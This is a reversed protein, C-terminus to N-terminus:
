IEHPVLPQLNSFDPFPVIEVPPVPLQVPLPEGGSDTDTLNDMALVHELQIDEVDQIHDVGPPNIIEEVVTEPQLHILAPAEEQAEVLVNNDVQAGPLPQQFHNQVQAAILIM